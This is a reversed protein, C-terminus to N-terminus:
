GILVTFRSLYISLMNQGFELSLGICMTDIAESIKNDGIRYKLRNIICSKLNRPEQKQPLTLNQM